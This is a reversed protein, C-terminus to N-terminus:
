HENQKTKNQEDLWFCALKFALMRNNSAQSGNDPFERPNNWFNDTWQQRTRLHCGLQIWQSGDPEIRPCCVYRYVHTFVVYKTKIQINYINNCDECNYCYSCNKCYSCYSCNLLTPSYLEAQEKTPWSNGNDDYWLKDLKNQTINM